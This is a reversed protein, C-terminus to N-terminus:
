AAESEKKNEAASALGTITAMKDKLLLNFGAIVRGVMIMSVLTGPGVGSIRGSFILGICCSLCVCIIDVINKTLGMSKHIRDSVAAVFADGPNAVIHMNVTVAAGIGTFLVATILLVSKMIMGPDNIIILDNFLNLLRTFVLSLAIQLLDTWTRNKGKIWMQALVMLTYVIFTMNGFNIGSLISITYPVSIIASVGLLTKTNLTLGLALIIVGLLYFLIRWLVKLITNKPYVSSQM